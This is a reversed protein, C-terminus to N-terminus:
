RANASLIPRDGPYIRRAVVFYNTDPLFCPSVAFIDLGRSM